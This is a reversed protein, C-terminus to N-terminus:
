SINNLNKNPFIWAFIGANWLYSSFLFCFPVFSSCCARLSFVSLLINCQLHYVVCFSLHLCTVWKKSNHWNQLAQVISQMFLPFYIFYMLCGINYFLWMLLSDTFTNIHARSPMECVNEWVHLTMKEKM